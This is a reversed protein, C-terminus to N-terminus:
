LFKNKEENFFDINRAFIKQKTLSIYWKNM